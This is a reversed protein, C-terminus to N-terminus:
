NCALATRLHDLNERQVAFYDKGQKQDADSLGELPDLVLTKAGTETAITDALRPSVLSEFFVYGIQKQRVLDALDHLRAASPEEDPSIGSIGHITFGYRRGLYGFADHAAIIDHQSCQALGQKFQSDLSQLQGIVKSANHRYDAAHAPDVKVLGDTINRVIQQAYVPDLWFHPDGEHLSIHDSARVATGTYDHAFKDTWPEFTGGNYIFLRAEQAAVLTRAAPEFDHPEAGAPTLNTVTVHTGGVRQAFDYLPYFSAAVSVGRQEAHQQRSILTFLGGIVVAVFLVALMARKM